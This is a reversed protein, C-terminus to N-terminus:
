LSSDTSKAGIQHTPADEIVAKNAEDAMDKQLLRMGELKKHVLEMADNFGNLYADGALTYFEWQKIFKERYVNCLAEKKTLKIKM